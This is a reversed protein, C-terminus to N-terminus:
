VLATSSAERRARIRAKLKRTFLLVSPIGLIPLPSPVSALTASTLTYEDFSSISTFKFNGSGVPANGSFSRDFTLAQFQPVLNSSYNISSTSIPQWFLVDYDSLSYTTPTGSITEILALSTVWSPIPSAGFADVSAQSQDITLSGSLTSRGSSSYNLNYTTLANATSCGFIM